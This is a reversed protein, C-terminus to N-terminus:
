SMVVMSPVDKLINAVGFRSASFLLLILIVLYITCICLFSVSVPKCLMILTHIGCVKLFPQCAVSSVLNKMGRLKLTLTLLCIVVVLLFITMLLSGIEEILCTM